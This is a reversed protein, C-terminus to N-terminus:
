PELRDERVVDKRNRGMKAQLLVRGGKTEWVM